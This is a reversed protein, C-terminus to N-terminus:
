SSRRRRQSPSQRNQVPTDPWRVSGTSATALARARRARGARATGARGAAPALELQRESAIRQERNVEGLRLRLRLLRAPPECEVLEERQLEDDRMRAIVVRDGDGEIAGALEDRAVPLLERERQGLVLFPRDGLDVAVEDAGDRHLPQQLAVDAGPLRDDREVRQQARDLVAALTREHRRRFGESLLVKERELWEAASEADPADQQGPRHARLLNAIRDLAPVRVDDDPRVGQDLAVDDNESRATATTSSCCRKPTSCRCARASPRLGCTSCMVAVGIGRVSANVM